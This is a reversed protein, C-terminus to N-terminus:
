GKIVKKAYPLNEVVVAQSLTLQEMDLKAEKDRREKPMIVLTSPLLRELTEQAGSGESNSVRLKPLPSSGCVLPYFIISITYLDTPFLKIQAQKPGSFMFADSPDTTVMFEQIDQSRNHFTYTAQLPTRLVGFPPLLCEVYLSSRSLKLTPLDFITQNIIEEGERTWCLIFKGPMITQSDLQPLMSSATVLAPFLQEVTSKPHLSLTSISMTPPKASVPSTSEMRSSSITIPHPSLNRVSCCICFVEDTNAQTTEDLAETLFTTTFSFPQMVSLEVMETNQCKSEELMYTLQLVVVRVGVTSAQIYFNVMEKGGAQVSDVKAVMVKTSMDGEVPSTPSAPCEAELSLMTTDDVLPDSRDRLWCSVEVRTAMKEEGSNLGVQFKYWEGVMVPLQQEVEMRIKAQRPEVNCVPEWRMVPKKSFQFSEVMNQEVKPCNKLLNLVLEDRGGIQLCVSLVSVRGGVDVNDPRFQFVLEEVKGEQLELKNHSICFQDYSKNSFCCNVQKVTVQGEGLNSLVLRVTIEQDAKVSSPLMVSVDVGSSFSSIDVEEQQEKALITAWGKTASGVSAREYKATLSPEPLPPRGSELLLLFNSWIRRQEEGMWPSADKPLGCLELCISFYTNLNCSLFSCKLSTSLLNFLLIPWKEQRYTPLCPLLTELAGKYDMMVMKEEAMQLTLKATMRPCNFLKFQETALNLMDLITQSHKARTRERFQMAEIGEKERALDSPEQKGVRWPRQGYYEMTAMGQLPDPCPYTSVMSCLSDALKRRSISYEAALHFYIGPHQTQVATQGGKCAEVFQSGFGAAQGAQWAAQEWSLQPPGPSSRWQDLHKRFQTIADRPLNLRFALRCIKYNIIGAVTRIEATNHETLRSELLLQYSATYSKYASHLDGKLESMFGVKFSHRVLLQLHTARNLLDRHSKVTKIQGHYYNSALEQLTAELQVVSAMAQHSTPSLSFVARSSISCETCVSTVTDQDVNDQLLVVALKTQRGTLAMRVKGVTTSVTSLSPNTFFIVVVSPLLQLHKTMWNRKLIGRPLFWEYSTRPPKAVPLELNDLNLLSFNLAHRDLGRNSSFMQWVKQHDPLNENEPELGLFGILPQPTIVVEPPIDWPDESPM